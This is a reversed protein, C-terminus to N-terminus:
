EEKTDVVAISVRSASYFDWCIGLMEKTSSESIIVLNKNKCYKMPVGSVIPYTTFYVFIFNGEAMAKAAVSLKMKKEKM